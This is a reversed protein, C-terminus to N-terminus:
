LQNAYIKTGYFHTQRFNKEGFIQFNNKLGIQHSMDKEQNVKLEINHKALSSYSEKIM